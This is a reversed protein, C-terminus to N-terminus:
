RYGGSYGTEELSRKLADRMQNLTASAAPDAALHRM